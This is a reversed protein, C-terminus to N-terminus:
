FIKISNKKIKTVFFSLFGFFFWFKESNIESHVFLRKAVSHYAIGNVNRPKM